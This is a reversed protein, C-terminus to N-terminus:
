FEDDEAGEKEYYLNKAIYDLCEALTGSKVTKDDYGTRSIHAIKFDANPKVHLYYSGHRALTHEFIDYWVMGDPHPTYWPVTEQIAALVKDIPMKYDLKVSLIREGTDSWVGGAYMDREWAWKQTTKYMLDSSRAGEKCIMRAIDNPYQAIRLGDLEAQLADQRNHLASRQRELPTIKQTTDDIERQIAEIRNTLEQERTSAVAKAKRSKAM